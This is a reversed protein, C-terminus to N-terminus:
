QSITRTAAITKLYNETHKITDWIFSDQIGLLSLTCSIGKMNEIKQQQEDPMHGGHHIIVNRIIRLEQLRDYSTKAANLELGAYRTLFKHCAHLDNEGKIDKYGLTLQRSKKENECLRKLWFELFSYINIVMDPKIHHSFRYFAEESETADYDYGKPQINEEEAKAEEMLIFLKNFYARM